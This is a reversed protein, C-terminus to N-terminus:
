FKSGRIRRALAMDRSTVTVRKAHLCLLNSDEFLGVMYAEASEQLALLSSASFRIGFKFSSAVERVLRQFPLKRILLETSKQYARIERIAVTGPRYRHAKKVAGVSPSTKRKDTPLLMRPAKGAILKGGFSATKRDTRKTRAM